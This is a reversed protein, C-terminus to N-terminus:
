APALSAFSMISRNVGARQQWRLLAGYGAAPSHNRSVTSSSTTAAAMVAAMEAAMEVAAAVEMVAVATVEAAVMLPHHDQLDGAAPNGQLVVGAAKVRLGDVRVKVQRHDRLGDVRVRVRRRDRLGGARAMARRRDRLGDVAMVPRRDPRLGEAM